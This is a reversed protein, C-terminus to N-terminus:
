TSTEIIDLDRSCALTCSIRVGAIQCVKTHLDSTRCVKPNSTEYIRRREVEKEIM